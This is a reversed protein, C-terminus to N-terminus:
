PASPRRLATMLAVEDAELVLLTAEHREAVRLAQARERQHEVEARDRRRRAHEAVRLRRHRLLERRELALDARREDVARLPRQARRGRARRQARVDLAHEGREAAGVGGHLVQAAARRPQPEGGEGARQRREHRGGHAVQAARVRLEHDLHQLELRALRDLPQAAALGVERHHVVHRAHRHGLRRAQPPPAQEDVVEVHHQGGAVPEGPAVGDLRPSSSPSGSTRGRRSM